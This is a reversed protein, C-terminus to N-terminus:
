ALRGGDTGSGSGSGPSSVPPVQDPYKESIQVWVPFLRQAGTDVGPRARCASAPPMGECAECPWVLASPVGLPYSARRATPATQAHDPRASLAGVDDLQVAGLCLGLSLSEQTLMASGPLPPFARGSRPCGRARSVPLSGLDLVPSSRTKYISLFKGFFLGIQQGDHCFPYTNVWYRNQRDMM